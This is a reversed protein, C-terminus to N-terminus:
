LVFIFSINNYFENKFAISSFDFSSVLMGLHFLMTVLFVRIPNLFSKKRGEIYFETKTIKSLRSNVKKYFYYEEFFITKSRLHM